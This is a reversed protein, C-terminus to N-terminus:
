RRVNNDFTPGKFLFWKKKMQTLYWEGTIKENDGNMFNKGLQAILYAPLTYIGNGEDIESVKAVGAIKM